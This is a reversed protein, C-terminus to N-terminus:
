KDVPRSRRAVRLDMDYCLLFVRSGLIGGGGDFADVIRLSISMCPCVVFLGGLEGALSLWVKFILQNCSSGEVLLRAYIRAAAVPLCSGM